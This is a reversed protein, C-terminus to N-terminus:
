RRFEVWVKGPPGADVGWADASSDIINLGFGGVRGREYRPEVQAVGNAATPQVVEIRVSEPGGIIIVELTRPPDLGAHMVANNTLEAIALEADPYREGLEPPPITAALAARAMRPAQDDPSLVTRRRM